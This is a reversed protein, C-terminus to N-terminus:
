NLKVKQRALNLETLFGQTNMLQIQSIASATEFDMALRFGEGLSSPNSGGTHGRMYVRSGEGSLGYNGGRQIFMPSSRLLGFFYANNQCGNVWASGDAPAGNYNFHQCDEMLEGVNGIMDYLGFANPKYMGVVATYEASDNCDVSSWNIRLDRRFAAAGAKDFVNAYECLKKADNGFFYDDSSGARAAYEWEAESPLRYRNGTKKSLWAAYARADDRGICMVPHFDSPAYAPLDWSGDVMEIEDSGAKRRWCQAKTKRKTEEVFQRFERVTVEYQSLKFAKVNVEHAPFHFVKYGNGVDSGMVFKGAPIDVMSPVTYVQGAFVVAFNSLVFCILSCKIWNM